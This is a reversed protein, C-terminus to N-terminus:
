RARSRSSRIPMSSSCDANKGKLLDRIWQWDCRDATPIGLGRRVADLDVAVMRRRRRGRDTIYTQEIMMSRTPRGGALPTPPGGPTGPNQPERGARTPRRAKQRPKRGRKRRPKRRRGDFLTTDERGKAVSVGPVGPCNLEPVTRDQGGNPESVGTLAPRNESSPIEGGGGDDRGVSDTQAEGCADIEDAASGAIAALLPWAAVPPAVRRPGRGAGATPAIAGPRRVEWVNTNGRGCARHVLVLEGSRLRPVFPRGFVHASM